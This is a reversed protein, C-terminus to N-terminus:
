SLASITINGEVPTFPPAVREKISHATALLNYGCSIGPREIIKLWGKVVKHMIPERLNLTPISPIVRRHIPGFRVKFM